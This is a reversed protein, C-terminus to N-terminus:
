RCSARAVASRLLTEATANAPASSLAQELSARATKESFGLSRLGAFARESAEVLLPSPMSGYDTGDAHRVRLGTSVKGDIRLRGRHLAGHHAGCLVVLNDPDNGGGESRLDLHHLDVYTANRCGPVVCRGRDRRFVERRTAPPTDQRARRRTLGATTVGAARGVRADAHAVEGAGRGVQAEAYALEETCHVARAALALEDANRSHAHALQDTVDERALEDIVGAHASTGAHAHALQGAVARARAQALKSPNATPGDPADSTVGQLHAVPVDQADCRCMEVIAPELEILEGNAHQFGRGCDECQTVVVQYSARGADGPGGLIQRAMLLLAADDDLRHDCRKQLEKMAERFTALTEAGVEFRLIHRVFEPRRRDTPRDGRARGSVMREVERVTGRRAMAIWERETEPVAVRSLERVASWNLKGSRLAEALEPLEELAEAVRVKEETTRRSLGLLREVYEGFSAYGFYVHTGARFARLLWTGEEADLEARKLRLKSLAEHALAWEESGVGISEAAEM